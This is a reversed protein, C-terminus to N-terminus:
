PYLVFETDRKIRKIDAANRIITGHRKITQRWLQTAHFSGKNYDETASVGFAEDLMDDITEYRDEENLIIDLLAKQETLFGNIRRMKQPKLVSLTILRHTKWTIEAEVKWNYKQM